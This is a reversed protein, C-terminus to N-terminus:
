FFILSLAEWVIWVRVMSLHGILSKQGYFWFLTQTEHKSFSSHKTQFHSFMSLMKHTFTHCTLISMVCVWLRTWLVCLCCVHVFRTGPLLKTVHSVLDSWFNSSKDPQWLWLPLTCFLIHPPFYPSCVIIYKHGNYSLSFPFYFTM